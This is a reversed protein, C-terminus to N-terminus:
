AGPSLWDALALEDTPRTEACMSHRMIELAWRRHADSESAVADGPVWLDYERMHADAATFLVCIDAAVGTLIVRTVGLQPLLVPLNTAYFGSFQPKVVFYDRDRPRLAAILARGPSDERDCHTIISSRESHWHGFNDNVYIVPVGAEDAADRLAVIRQAAAEAPERLDEGGEFDLDNIMDIVILAAAHPASTGSPLPTAPESM